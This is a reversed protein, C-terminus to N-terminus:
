KSATIVPEIAVIVDSFVEELPRNADIVVCSGKRKTNLIKAWALFGERARQHFLSSEKAMRDKKGASNTRQSGKESDIDLVITLDPTVGGTALYDVREFWDKTIARRSFYQYAFSSGSFRDCIVFNFPSSKELAPRITFEVHQARDGELLLFESIHSFKKLSVPDLLISRIGRCVPDDGGPEKTFLVRSGNKQLYEKLRLAVTTKGAGESGEFVIFTKKM